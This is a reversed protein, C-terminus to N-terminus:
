EIARARLHSHKFGPEEDSGALPHWSKTDTSQFLRPASKPHLPICGKTLMIQVVDATNNAGYKKIIGARRTEVLQPSINLQRASEEVADGSMICGMVDCEHEALRYSCVRDPRVRCMKQNTKDASANAAISSDESQACPSFFQVLEAAPRPRSLLYGQIETCGLLRIQQLQRETEVGEATIRMNLNEALDGVARVIARSDENDALATIFSRDIKIRHFPFSLLYGLSSYGTGFDDVAFQVGLEHLSKLTARNVSTNQILVSETLELELKNPRIGAAAIAGVVVNVLNGNAVQVASLNVAVQIDDPWTAAEACATRVVWEGLSVILGTEEAIPIFEAPSVLGRTPHHWRLLAEFSVIKNNALSAIPQYFLEFEGNLLAKQLDQELQARAQMREQLQPEYFCYSGRRTNKAEYLAIDAATLLADLESADTPAIAIGVSINATIQHGNLDFPERLAEIVRKALTAADEPQGYKSQIIAFEDGSLRAVLDVDSACGGVRDAVAKLLKDGVPHGLSDNVRKLHDLDLYLVALREGRQIRKLAQEMQEYFVKRNPLGTLADVHAEYSIQAAARKAETIDDHTAVWGGGELPHNVISIARGDNLNTIASFINGQSVAAALDSINQEVEDSRFTGTTVRLNLLERLTCGPRVVEPSLGYMELYRKNSVMMRTSSDFMVLGQSINNLAADITVNARLLMAESTALRHFQKSLSKLLFTACLMLLLAGLALTIAQIRWTALAATESMGVNVVLPYDRLARVSILRNEGDFFGLSRFHGGSQSVLRYWPSSASLKEGGRSKPDPYRVIVTGDKHLLVFSLDRLSTISEYINQFYSLRVGISIMGLFENNADNIRKSFFVTPMNTVRDRIPNAIYVRRDDYNKAHQFHERDSIDTAPLPWKNTSGVLLGNKDVLAIVDINSLHAKRETLQQYTDEGELLRRFNSKTRAGRKGIREELEDIMLDISQVSHDIQDAMITALNGSDNVADAIAEALLWWITLGIALAATCILGAAAVKLFRFSKLGTPITM